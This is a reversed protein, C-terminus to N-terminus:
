SEKWSAEVLDVLGDAEIDILRHAARKEGGAEGNRDKNFSRVPVPDSYRGDEQQRSVLLREDNWTFLDRRGDGNSEGQEVSPFVYRLILQGEGTGMSRADRSGMTLPRLGPPIDIHGRTAM